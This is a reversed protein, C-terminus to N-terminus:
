WQSEADEGKKVRNRREGQSSRKEGETVGRCGTM